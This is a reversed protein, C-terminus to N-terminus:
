GFRRSPLDTRPPLEWRVSQCVNRGNEEPELHYPELAHVTVLAGDSLQRTTAWGTRICNSLALQLPHDFDWTKGYDYSIVAAVGFPLHYHTYTALLRDDELLTFQSQCESYQLFERPKTWTVGEDTSEMIVMHACAHDNPMTGPPYPLEKGAIPHPWEFRSAGLIRGDPMRAFDGEIFMPFSDDWVEVKRRDTWTKGNDTSHVLWGRCRPAVHGEPSAGEITGVCRMFSITGDPHLIPSRVPCVWEYETERGIGFGILEWTAGGDDSYGVGDMSETTFLLAGDDLCTLSGDKGFLPTHEMAQWSRGGDASTFLTVPWSNSLPHGPAPYPVPQVPSESNVPSAILVGDQRVAFGAKYMGRGGLQARHAPMISLQAVTHADLGTYGTLGSRNYDTNFADHDWVFPAPRAERVDQGNM